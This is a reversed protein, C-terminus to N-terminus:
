EEKVEMVEGDWDVYNIYYNKNDIFILLGYEELEKFVKQKYKGVKFCLGLIDKSQAKTIRRYPYRMLMKKAIERYITPSEKNILLGPKEPVEM